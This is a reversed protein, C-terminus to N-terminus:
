SAAERNRGLTELFLEEYGRVMRELSFRGAVIERGAAALRRALEADALLRGLAEALAGADGPPFLLAAAGDAGVVEEVPPIRSAAVPLGAALAELLALPHGEYRSPLAFVDMASLWAPTDPQFGALHVRGTLGLAAARKWAPEHLPGAGVFLLRLRADAPALRAFAEVLTLPDKQDALRGLAGIVRADPPLGLRRRTEARAAGTARSEIEAADVGNAIVRVAARPLRLGAAASAAVSESVAAVRDARGAWLRELLFRWRRPEPIHHTVVLKGVGAGRAVLRAAAAAHFLHANLLDLRAGGLARRLRWLAHLDSPSHAGCGAVPVGARSLEGAFFGDAPALSWVGAVEFRRRDLRRSLEFVVREAGGPGLETTLFGIRPRNGGEGTM